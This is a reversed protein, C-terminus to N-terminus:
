DRASHLYVIYNSISSQVAARCFQRVQLQISDQLNKFNHDLADPRHYFLVYLNQDEVRM